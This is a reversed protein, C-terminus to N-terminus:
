TWARNPLEFWDDLKSEATWCCDRAAALELRHEFEDADYGYADQGVHAIEHCIVGIPLHSTVLLTLKLDEKAMANAVQDGPTVVAVKEGFVKDVYVGQVAESDL